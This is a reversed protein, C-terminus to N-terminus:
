QKMMVVKESEVDGTLYQLFGWAVDSANVQVKVSVRDYQSPAFTSSTVVTDTGYTQSTADWAAVSVVLTAKGNALTAPLQHDTALIDDVDNSLDTYSKGATVGTNAGKRAADTLISKVMVARGMEVMGAVIIGLFIAIFAFEVAV